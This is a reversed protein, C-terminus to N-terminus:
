QLNPPESVQARGNVHVLQVFGIGVLAGLFCSKAVLPTDKNSAKSISAVDDDTANATRIIAEFPKEDDVAFIPM